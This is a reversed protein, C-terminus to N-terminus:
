MMMVSVGDSILLYQANAPAPHQLQAAVHQPIAKLPALLLAELSWDQELPEDDSADSEFLDYDLEASLFASTHAHAGCRADSAHPPTVATGTVATGTVAARSSRLQGPM